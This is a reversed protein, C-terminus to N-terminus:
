TFSVNKENTIKYDSLSDHALFAKAKFKLLSVDRNLNRFTSRKLKYRRTCGKENTFEYSISTKPIELNKNRARKNDAYTKPANLM